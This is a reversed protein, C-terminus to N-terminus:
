QEVVIHQAIRGSLGVRAGLVRVILPNGQRVVSIERGVCVGMAMLRQMASDQKEIHRVVGRTGGAVENLRRSIAPAAPNRLSENM